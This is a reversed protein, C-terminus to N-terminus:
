ALVFPNESRANAGISCRVARSSSLARPRARPRLSNRRRRPRSVSTLPHDPFTSAAVVQRMRGDVRNANM